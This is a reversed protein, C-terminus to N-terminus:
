DNGCCAIRHKVSCDQGIALAWGNSGFEVTTGTDASALTWGGCTQFLNTQPVVSSTAGAETCTVAMVSPTQDYLCNHLTPQVCLQLNLVTANRAYSFFEDVTCMHATGAFTNYCIQNGGPQGDFAGDVIAVSYGLYTSAAGADSANVSFCSILCVAAVFLASKRM